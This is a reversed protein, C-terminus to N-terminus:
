QIFWRNETRTGPKLCAWVPELSLLIVISRRSDGSWTLSFNFFTMHLGPLTSFLPTIAKQLATMKGSSFPALLAVETSLRLVIKKQHYVECKWSWSFLASRYRKFIIGWQLCRILLLYVLWQSYETKYIDNSATCGFSKFSATAIKMLWSRSGM